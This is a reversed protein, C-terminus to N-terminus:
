GTEAAAKAQASFGKSSTSLNMGIFQDGSTDEVLTTPAIQGPSKSCVRIPYRRFLGERAIERVQGADM